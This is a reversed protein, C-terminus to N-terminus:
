MERKRKPVSMYAIAVLMAVVVLAPVMVVASIGTDPVDNGFLAQASEATIVGDDIYILSKGNADKASAKLTYVTKDNVTTEDYLDVFDAITKGTVSGDVASKFNLYTTSLNYRTSGIKWVSGGMYADELVAQTGDNEYTLTYKSSAYIWSGERGNGDVFAGNRNLEIWDSSDSQNVFKKKDWANTLSHVSAYGSFAEPLYIATLKDASQFTSRGMYTNDFEVAIGSFDIAELDTCWAFASGGILVSTSKIIVSKMSVCSGFAGNGIRTVGEPITVETLGNCGTFASDGITTVSEPITVETLGRCGYFAHGGIGTVGEPITVKTLGSCEKFISDEIETVGAPIKVETLGGCECFAGIGIETVGEPITVKTLGSCRYFAYDRIRDVNYQQGNITVKSQINAETIGDEYGYVEATKASSDAIQYVVKGIAVQTTEDVSDVQYAHVFNNANTNVAGSLALMGASFVLVLALMLTTLLSKSKRKEM